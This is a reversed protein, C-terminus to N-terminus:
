ITNNIDPRIVFILAAYYIPHPHPCRVLQECPEVWLDMIVDYTTNESLGTAVLMSIDYFVATFLSSLHPSSKITIIFIVTVPFVSFTSFARGVTVPAKQSGRLTGDSGPAASRMHIFFVMVTVPQWTAPVSCRTVRVTRTGQARSQPSPTPRGADTCTGNVM